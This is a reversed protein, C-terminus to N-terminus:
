QQVAAPTTTATSAAAGAQAREAEAPRAPELDGAAQFTERILTASPAPGPPKFAPPLAWTVETDHADAPL